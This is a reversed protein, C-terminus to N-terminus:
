LRKITHLKHSYQQTETNIIGIKDIVEIKVRGSSHILKDEGIYIGVHTIKGDKEFYLLDGDEAEEISTITNGLLIQDKADRPLTYGNMNYVTQVLGSCDIGFINKGGWLYPTNLFLKASPVINQKSCGNIYSVYSSHIQFKKGVINLSNTEHDYLPLISGASLHYVTKDTLCFMDAIPTCTVFLPTSKIQEFEEKTIESLMKEDAWGTYSDKTNKIQIFSNEKGIIECIEGFLLQTVMESWEKAEARIPLVPNINIAYKM